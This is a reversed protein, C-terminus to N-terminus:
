MRIGGRMPHAHLNRGHTRKASKSFVRKSHRRSMKHRKRMFVELFIFFLKFFGSLFGVV